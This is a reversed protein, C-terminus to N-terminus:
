THTSIIILLLIQNVAAAASTIFQVLYMKNHIKRSSKTILVSPVPPPASETAEPDFDPQSEEVM